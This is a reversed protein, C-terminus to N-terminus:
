RMGKGRLDWGLLILDYGREGCVYLGGGRQGLISFLVFVGRGLWGGFCVLFLVDM